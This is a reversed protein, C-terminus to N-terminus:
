RIKEFHKFSQNQDTVNLFNLHLIKSKEFIMKCEAWDAAINKLYINIGIYLKNWKNPFNELQCNLAKWGM